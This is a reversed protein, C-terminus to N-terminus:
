SVLWARGDQEIFRNAASPGWTGAAYGKLIRDKEAQSAEEWKQLVPTLLRWSTEVGDKRWYLTQKGLICDLILTSYDEDMKAGFTERYDLEMRLPALCMKAGPVKAQFLLSVGQQPQIDFVLANPSPVPQGSQSGGSMGHPVKKFVVAIRTLKKTLRKGAHFYFPVDKWRWNDVLLKMAFYTETCSTPAVGDEERYAVIKQGSVEGADYQGRLLQSGLNGMDFPRISKMFKVKEDRVSDSSFDVPPEMGLLAALQLMHNQFMDRLLGAQEFYGARHEVGLQEAVTIQVHDIHQSNWAPEFFRNAFRFMLINQVTEKGLYHDIRYIQDESLHQLLESNLSNASDFDRGFPKEVIVRHYPANNQYKRVLKDRALGSVITAYLGPPTALHFVFNGGTNYKQVLEEAVRQLQKYGDDLDYEGAVYFCRMAFSEVESEPINGHAQRLSAKVRLRFATDDMKSRAFGVVFFEEPVRKTRFLSFVAPLLKRHTLDGSAGFIVYGCPGGAVIECSEAGAESIESSLKIEM